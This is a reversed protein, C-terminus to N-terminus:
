LEQLDELLEHLYSCLGDILRQPEHDLWEELGPVDQLSAVDVDRSSSLSTSVVTRVSNGDASTHYYVDFEEPLIRLLMQYNHELRELIEEKTM